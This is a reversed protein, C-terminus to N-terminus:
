QIIVKQKWLTRLSYHLGLTCYSLIAIVPTYFYLESWHYLVDKYTAEDTDGQFIYGLFTLHAMSLIRFFSNIIRVFPSNYITKVHGIKCLRDKSYICEKSLVCANFSRSLALRLRHEIWTLSGLTLLVSWIHFKFGHLTSSILYTVLIAISINSVRAKIPRFAYDKLWVHVPRHWYVVVQVLSRPWEVKSISCFNVEDRGPYGWLACLASTTYCLFFHSFRFEQAILYISLISLVPQFDIHKIEQIHVSINSIIQSALLIGAAKILMSIARMLQILFKQVCMLRSSRKETSKFNPHWPGFICTAPHVLYAATSLLDQTSSRGFLVTTMKMSLTMFIGRLRAHLQNLKVHIYFENILIPLSIMTSSIVTFVLSKRNMCRSYTGIYSVFLLITSLLLYKGSENGEQKNLFSSIQFLGMLLTVFCRLFKNGPAILDGLLHLVRTLFVNLITPSLDQAIFLIPKLLNEVVHFHFYFEIFSPNYDHLYPLLHELDNHRQFEEDLITVETIDNDIISQGM